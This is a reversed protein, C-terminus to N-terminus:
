LAARALRIKSEPDTWAVYVYGASTAIQPFGSSRDGAVDAIRTLSITGGNHSVERVFLAAGDDANEIWSALIRKDPTIVVGSRGIPRHMDIRFPVEFSIGGDQSLALLVRPQDRAATYWAVATLGGSASIAPGNVPCGRIEWGDHHVTRPESFGDQTLVISAIDRIEGHTRDRYVVVIGSDTRAASTQCCSCVRGDLLHSAMVAGSKALTAGRLSMSGAADRGDLWVVLAGAKWPVASVFGHQTDSTDAYPRGADAWSAGDDRSFHLAFDYGHARESRRRLSHAVISKGGLSTISPFDAWNVFWDAGRAATRVKAEPVRVFRLRHYGEEDPEVWSLMLTDSKSLYPLASGPRAGIPVPEFALDSQGCGTLCGLPVLIALNRWSTWSSPLVHESTM